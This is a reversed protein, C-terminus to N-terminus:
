YLSYLHKIKVQKQSICIRNRQRRHHQRRHNIQAKVVPQVVHPHAVVFPCLASHLLQRRHTHHQRRAVVRCPQLLVQHVQQLLVIRIKFHHHHVVQTAVVRLKHQLQQAVVIGVQLHHRELFIDVQKLTLFVRQRYTDLTSRVVYQHKGVGVTRRLVQQPQAAHHPPVLFLPRLNHQSVATHLPALGQQAAQLLIVRQAVPRSIQATCQHPMGVRARPAVQTVTPREEELLASEDAVIVHGIPAVVQKHVLVGVPVVSGHTDVGISAQRRLRLFAKGGPVFLPAVAHPRAVTVAKAAPQM